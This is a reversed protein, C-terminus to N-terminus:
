ALRRRLGLLVLLVLLVLGLPLTAAGQGAGSVSCGGILEQSDMNSSPPPTLAPPGCVNLNPDNTKFCQAGYPCSTAGPTCSQTCFKGSGM